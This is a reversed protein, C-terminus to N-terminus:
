PAVNNNRSLEEKRRQEAAKKLRLEAEFLDRARQSQIFEQFEAEEEQRKTARDRQLVSTQTEHPNSRRHKVEEIHEANVMTKALHKVVDRQDRASLEHYAVAKKPPPAVGAARWPTKEPSKRNRPSEECLEAIPPLYKPQVKPRSPHTAAPKKDAVYSRPVASLLADIRKPQELAANKRHPSSAPPFLPPPMEGRDLFRGLLESSSMGHWPKASTSETLLLRRLRDSEGKIAEHELAVRVKAAALRMAAPSKNIGLAEAVDVQYPNMKNHLTPQPTKSHQIHRAPEVPQTRKPTPEQVPALRDAEEVDVRTQQRDRKESTLVRQRNQSQARKEEHSTNVREPPDSLEQVIVPEEKANTPKSTDQAPESHVPESDETPEAQAPPDTANTPEAQAPPETANTPESNDKTPETQLPPASQNVETDDDKAAVPPNEPQTKAKDDTNEEPQPVPKPETEEKQEQADTEKTQPASSKTSPQRRPKDNPKLTRVAPNVTEGSSSVHVFRVQVPLPATQVASDCMRPKPTPLSKDDECTSNENVVPAKVAVAPSTSPLEYRKKRLTKRAAITTVDALPPLTQRLLYELIAFPPGLHTQTVFLMFVPKVLPASPALCGTWASVSLEVLRQLATHSNQIQEILSDESETLTVVERIVFGKEDLVEGEALEFLDPNPADPSPSFSANSVFQALTTQRAKEVRELEELEKLTPPARKKAERIPCNKGGPAKGGLYYDRGALRKKQLAQVAHDKRKPRVKQLQRIEWQKDFVIGLNHEIQRVLNIDVSHYIATKQHLRGEIEQREEPTLSDEDVALLLRDEEISTGTPAVPEVAEGDDDNRTKRADRYKKLETQYNRRAHEIPDGTWLQDVRLLLEVFRKVIDTAFSHRLVFSLCRSDFQPYQGPSTEHFKAFRLSTTVLGYYNFPVNLLMAAASFAAALTVSTTSACNEPRPNERVLRPRFPDLESSRKPTLTKPNAAAQKEEEERLSSVEAEFLLQLGLPRSAM